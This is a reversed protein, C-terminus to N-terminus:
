RLIINGWIIKACKDWLCIYSIRRKKCGKAKLDGYGYTIAPIMQGDIIQNYEQTHEKKVTIHVKKLEYIKCYQNELFKSAETGCANLVSSIFFIFFLINRM